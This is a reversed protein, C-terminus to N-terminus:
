IGSKWKTGEPNLKLIETSRTIEDNKIVGGAVVVFKEYTVSDTIIGASHSNRGIQLQHGTDLVLEVDLCPVRQPKWFETLLFAM